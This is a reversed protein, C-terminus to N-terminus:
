FKIRIGCEWNLLKKRPVEQSGTLKATFKQIPQAFATVSTSSGFSGNNCAFVIGFVLIIIIAFVAPMNKM